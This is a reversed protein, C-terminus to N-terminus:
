NMRAVVARVRRLDRRRQEYTAGLVVLLVGGIALPVWAPVAAAIRPLLPWIERLAVLAVTLAGLVFPAQRRTAAGAITVALAGGGLLLSRWPSGDERFIVALSPLAMGALGAGLVSWSSRSPERRLAVLGVATAILATPLTYAEPTRIGATWLWLWSAVLELGLGAVVALRRSPRLATAGVILGALTLALATHWTDGLTFAVAGAVGAFGVFELSRYPREDPLLGAGFVLAAATGLVPYAIEARSLDFAAGVAVAEALAAAAGTVAGALRIGGHYACVAGTVAVVALVTITAPESALSWGLATTGLVAAVPAGIARKGAFAAVAAGAVALVTATAIGAPWPADLALPIMLVALAWVPAAAWLKKTLLAIGAGVVIVTVVDFGTGHWGFTAGLGAGARAPAGDWVSSAWSLPGAVAEVAVPLVALGGIGLGLIGTAGLPTRGAVAYAGLVVAAALASYLGIDPRGGNVAGALAGAAASVPVTVLAATGHVSWRERLAAALGIALLAAAFIALARALRTADLASAVAATESTVALLAAATAIGGLVSTRDRAAWAAALATWILALAGITVLTAARNAVSWVAAHVGALTGIGALLVALPRERSVALAAGGFTAAAVVGVVLVASLAAGGAVPTLLALAAMPVALAFPLAKVGFWRWCLLAVAAAIPVVTYVVDLPPAYTAGPALRAIQRASGVDWAQTLWSIPTTLVVFTWFAPIAAALGTVATVGSLAGTRWATPVVVAAAALVLALVGFAVPEHAHPGRLYIATAGAAVALVAAGSALHRAVSTRILEAAALTLAGLVALALASGVTEALTGTVFRAAIQGLATVAAASAGIWGLVKEPTADYRKALWVVALNAAVLATATSGFPVDTSSAVLPLAAQGTVVAIPRPLRLPVAFPYLAAVATVVAAVIGAYVGVPLSDDVGLFGVRWAAYGDLAVLVLGVAAITEGTAPLKFRVLVAPVTLMVVTLASLILAKGGIGFRSWAFATFAIAAVALLLGGLLLLVTQISHSSAEGAVTRAATAAERVPGSALDRATNGTAAQFPSGPQAVAARPRVAARLASILSARRALLQGRVGHLRAREQELGALRADLEVLERDVQGLETAVPGTLPLHCRPCASSGPPREARCDPCLAATM